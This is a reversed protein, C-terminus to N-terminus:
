LVNKDFKCSLGTETIVDDIHLDVYVYNLRIWLFNDRTNKIQKKDLKQQKINKFLVYNYSKNRPFVYLKLDM